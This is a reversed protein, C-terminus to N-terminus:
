HPGHLGQFGQGRGRSQGPGCTLYWTQGLGAAFNQGLGFVVAKVQGRPLYPILNSWVRFYGNQGLGVTATKFLGLLLSHFKVLALPLFKAWAWLYCNLGPWFTPYCNQGPWLTATKFFGM